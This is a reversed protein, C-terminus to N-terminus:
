SFYHAAGAGELDELQERTFAAKFDSEWRDQHSGKFSQITKTVTEKLPGFTVHRVISTVLAPMFPPLDYPLAQIVCSMMLVTTMHMKDPKCLAASASSLKELKRKKFERSALTDGNKIYAESLTQLDKPTKLALYSIVGAKALNAVLTFTSTTLLTHPVAISCTLTILIVIVFLTIKV